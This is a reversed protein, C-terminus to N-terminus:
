RAVPMFRSFQRDNVPLYPFFPNSSREIGISGSLFFTKGDNIYQLGLEARSYLDLNGRQYIGHKQGAKLDSPMFSQHVNIYAPTASVSAFAFLNNNLRRNIQVGVPASIITASGGKFLSFSTNIASYSSLFWKKKSSSDNIGVPRTYNGWYPDNVLSGPVFTQAKSSTISAGLVILILMGM